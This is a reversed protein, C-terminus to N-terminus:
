MKSKVLKELKQYYTESKSSKYYDKEASVYISQVDKISLCPKNMLIYEEAKERTSFYKQTEFKYFNNTLQKKECNFESEFCKWLEDIDSYEVIDVNVRCCKDGEYIDVGDETKFLPTKSKKIESLKYTYIKKNKDNSRYYIWDTTIQIIEQNKGCGGDIKDGVSFIEGDSLRKISHITVKDAFNNPELCSLTCFINPSNQYLYKYEEVNKDNKYTLNSVRYIRDQFLLSLIEYEKKEEIVEQWFEPNGPYERILKFKKM